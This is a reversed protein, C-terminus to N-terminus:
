TWSKGAALCLKILLMNKYQSLFVKKKAVHLNEKKVFVFGLGFVFDYEKLLNRCIYKSTLTVFQIYYLM